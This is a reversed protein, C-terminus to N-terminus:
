APVFYVDTPLFKSNRRFRARLKMGVKLDKTEAGIVRTLLLTDVGEFEILALNFPCEPLFVESGFYCTTWTHIKGEQPLEFWETKDGCHMCHGRPTAYKYRCRLCKTGLLRRNALGAFFPSDQGYSHLYDIQYPSKIVIPAMKDLEKLDKPFPVNFLITGDDTEPLHANKDIM